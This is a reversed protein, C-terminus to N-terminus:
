PRQESDSLSTQNLTLERWDGSKETFLLGEITNKRGKITVSQLYAALEQRPTLILEWSQQSLSQFALEFDKELATKDGNLINLISRSFSFVQPYNRVDLKLKKNPFDISIFTDTYVMKGKKPTTYSQEFYNPAVYKLTGSKQFSLELLSDYQVETFSKQSQQTQKMSLLLENLQDITRLEEQCIAPQCYFFLLPVLIFLSLFPNNKTM